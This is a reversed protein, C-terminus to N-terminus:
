APGSSTAIATCTAEAAVAPKAYPRSPRMRPARCQFADGCDHDSGALGPEGRAVLERLAADLMDHELAACQAVRPSRPAPAREADDARVRQVEEGAVLVVTGLRVREEVRL